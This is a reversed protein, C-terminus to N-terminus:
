EDATQRHVGLRSFQIEQESRILYVFVKYTKREIFIYIFANKIFRIWHFGDNMHLCSWLWVSIWNYDNWFLIYHLARSLSMCVCLSLCMSVAAYVCVPVPMRWVRWVSSVPCLVVCIIYSWHESLTWEINTASMQMSQCFMPLLYLAM